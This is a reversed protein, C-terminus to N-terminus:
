GFPLITLSWSTTEVQFGRLPQSKPTGFSDATGGVFVRYYM